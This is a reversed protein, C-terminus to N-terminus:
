LPPPFGLSQQLRGLLNDSKEIESLEPCRHDSGDPGLELSGGCTDCSWAAVCQCTWHDSGCGSCPAAYAAAYADLDDLNTIDHEDM